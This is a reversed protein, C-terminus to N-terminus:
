NQKSGETPIKTRPIHTLIQANTFPDWASVSQSVAVIAKDWDTDAHFGKVFACIKVCMGASLKSELEGRLL